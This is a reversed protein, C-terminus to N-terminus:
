RRIERPGCGRRVVEPNQPLYNRFELRAPIKVQWLEAYSPVQNKKWNKEWDALGSYTILYAPNIKLGPNASFSTSQRGLERAFTEYPVQRRGLFPFDRLTKVNKEARKGGSFNWGYILRESWPMRVFFCNNKESFVDANNIHVIVNSGKMNLMDTLINNEFVIRENNNNRFAIHNVGGFAFTCHRVAASTNAVELGGHGYALVSDEILINKSNRLSITYTAGGILLRRFTIDGGGQVRIPAYSYGDEPSLGSGTFTMNEFILHSQNIIRFGEALLSGVGGHFRVKEGEAGKFTIPRESTGSVYVDVTECYEGGRLILTDGPLLRSVAYEVTRFPSDKTGKGKDSGSPSVYCTKASAFKLPLSFEGKKRSTSRSSINGSVEANSFCDPIGSKAECRVFYKKGPVLGTLTIRHCSAAAAFAISKTCQPTEGWYLTGGFPFNGKIEVVATTPTLSNFALDALKLQVNRKQRRYPGVPMADIAKGDFEWANRCTGRGGPVARAKFSHKEGAPVKSGYANYDSWAAGSVGSFRDFINATIFSGPCKEVCADTFWNHTLRLEPVASSQLKGYCHSISINKSNKVSLETPMLRELKISSCNELSIKGQILAAYRGRGRISANKVGKLVLDGKVPGIIYLEAGPIQLAKQARDLTAFATKVSRGDANDNGSPSLFFLKESAKEPARRAVSEPVGGMPRCDFNERDAFIEDPTLTKEYRTFLNEGTMKEGNEVYDSSVCNRIHRPHDLHSFSTAICNTVQFSKEKSGKVRIRGYARNGEFKTSGSFPGGYLFIDNGTNDAGINNRVICHTNTDYIGAGCGSRNHQTRNGWVRCNEIIGDRSSVTFGIGHSNLFATVNRVTVNKQPRNIVIGWPLKKQSSPIRQDAYKGKSYFGTVGFGEFLINRPGESAKAAYLSFGHYPTVGITLTHKAPDTSDSTRLYLIKEKEDYTWAGANQKLGEGTSCFLMDRLTDREFVTEPMSPWPAKWIGDGCPTFEPAPVDGRFVVSGPIEAKITLDRLVKRNDARAEFREKYEGPALLITDGPKWQRAARSFSGDGPRVRIVRGPAAAAPLAILTCLLFATTFHSYKM